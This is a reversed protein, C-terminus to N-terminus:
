AHIYRERYIHIYTDVTSRNSYCWPLAARQAPSCKQILSSIPEKFYSILLLWRCPQSAMSMQLIYQSAMSMTPKSHKPPWRGLLIETNEYTQTPLGDADYGYVFCSNQIQSAMSMMLWQKPPWQCILFETNPLGDVNNSKQTKFVM